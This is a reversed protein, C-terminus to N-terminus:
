RDGGQHKGFKRGIAAAHAIHTLLINIHFLDAAPHDGLQSFIAPTINDVSSKVPHIFFFQIVAITEAPTRIASGNSIPLRIGFSHASKVQDIVRIGIVGFGKREGIGFYSRGIRRHFHPYHRGRTAGAFPKINWAIRPIIVQGPHIKNGTGTFHHDLLQIAQLVTIFYPDAICRIHLQFQQERFGVTGPHVQM